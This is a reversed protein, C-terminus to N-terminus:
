VLTSYKMTAAQKQPNLPKVNYVSLELVALVAKKMRQLYTIFVQDQVM